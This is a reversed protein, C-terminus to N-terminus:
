NTNATIPQIPSGLDAVPKIFGQSLDAMGQARWTKDYRSRIDFTAAKAKQCSLDMGRPPCFGDSIKVIALSSTSTDGKDPDIFPAKSPIVLSNDDCALPYNATCRIFGIAGTVLVLDEHNIVTEDIGAQALEFAQMSMEENGSMRLELLSTGLSALSLLTVAVLIILATFLAAGNQGPKTSITNKKLMALGRVNM